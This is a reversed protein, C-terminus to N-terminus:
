CGTNSEDESYATYKDRRGRVKDAPYKRQNIELKDRAATLLDMDLRDALHTLYILVDGLEQRVQERTDASLDASEDRELWQFHELLEATEVILAMALNKPSHYQDWDREASFHRLQQKLDDLTNIPTQTM